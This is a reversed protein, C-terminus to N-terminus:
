RETGNHSVVKVRDLYQDLQGLAQRVTDADRARAADELRRGVDSIPAFGYSAGSGKLNHAVRQIVDFAERAVAEQLARVDRRRNALFSPVRRSIIPDVVVLIDDAVEGDPDSVHVCNRGRQKARLLAEDAAVLLVEPSLDPRPVLSAVGASVTVRPACRSAEHPIARAAVAERGREAVIRAGDLDTDALVFLFEEGGYRAFLDSPRRGCGALTEAVSVLCQDGAPHGYRENFAHFDDVDFMVLAISEAARSARRWERRYAINLQRRNAVNTLADTASLRALEENTKRLREALGLLQHERSTSQQEQRMVRLASRVRAALERPRVPKHVFDSAGADLAEEVTCEDDISSVVVIPVPHYRRTRKLRRCLELGNGDPLLLDVLMLEPVARVVRDPELWRVAADITSVIEVSRYGEDALIKAVLAAADGDDEIVLISVGSTAALYM